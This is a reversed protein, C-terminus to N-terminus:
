FLCTSCLLTDQLNGSKLANRLDWMAKSHWINYISDNNINGVSIHRARHAACPVVTGDGHIFLSEYPYACKQDGRTPAEKIAHSREDNFPSIPVYRQVAVYDAKDVWFKKFEELEHKNEEQLLFSVRVIPLKLGMKARLNLFMDINNLVRRFNLGIRLKNYTEETIADVSFCIRTVGTNLIKKSMDETLLLANTNFHIDMIGKDTVYQTREIIDPDLLPENTQSMGISPCGHEACEDVLRKFTETPLYEKYGYDARLDKHGHACMRCRGNCKFQNELRVFLPFDELVEMKSANSWRERYDSWRKGFKEIFIAEFDTSSNNVVRGASTSETKIEGM